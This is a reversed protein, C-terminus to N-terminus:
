EATVSGAARAHLSSWDKDTMPSTGSRVGKLVEAEIMAKAKQMQDARILASVYDSASGYGGESVQTVVFQKLTEPLSINLADMSIM